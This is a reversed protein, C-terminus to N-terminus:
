ITKTGARSVLLGFLRKETSQPFLQPLAGAVLTVEARGRIFGLIDLTLPFQAGGGTVTMSVRRGITGDAGAASVPLPASSLAEISVSGKLRVELLAKLYHEICAPGRPGEIARLNQAALAAEPMVTVESLTIQHELGSEHEFQPSASEALARGPAVGGACSAVEGDVGKSQGGTSAVAAPKFGPVDAQTLNIAHAYALAQSTSPPGGATTAKGGGCGALLVGSSLLVLAALPRGGRSQRAM